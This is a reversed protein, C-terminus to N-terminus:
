GLQGVKDLKTGIQGVKDWKTGSTNIEESEDLRGVKKDEKM